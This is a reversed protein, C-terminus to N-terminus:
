TTVAATLTVEVCAGLPLSSVGVAARAHSGAEGMAGVLFESAGNAVLSHDIFGPTAAVFVGVQVIREVRDFSGVAARLAALAQLAAQRAAEQGQEVSVDGGLLGPHLLQGDVVPVQGAVFALGGSVVAPVYAAIARPPPPLEFGMESLRGLIQEDDM